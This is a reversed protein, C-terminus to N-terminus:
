RRPARKPEVPRPPYRRREEDTMQRIVLAGSEVQERVLELKEQRKQEARERVTKSAMQSAAKKRRRRIDTPFGGYCRFPVTAGRETTRIERGRSM